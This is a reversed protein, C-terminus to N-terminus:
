TRELLLGIVTGFGGIMMLEVRIEFARIIARIEAIMRREREDARKEWDALWQEQRADLKTRHRDVAAM